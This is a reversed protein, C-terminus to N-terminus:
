EPPGSRQRRAARDLMFLGTLTVVLGVLQLVWMLSSRQPVLLNVAAAVIMWIAGAAVVQLGPADTSLTGRRRSDWAFFAALPIWLFALVLQGVEQDDLSTVLVILVVFVVWSGIRRFGTPM